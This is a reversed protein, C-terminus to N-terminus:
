PVVGPRLELELSSTRPLEFQVVVCWQNVVGVEDRLGRVQTVTGSSCAYPSSNSASVRFEFQCAPLDLDLGNWARLLSSSATGDNATYNYDLHNIPISGGSPVYTASTVGLNGDITVLRYHSYARTQIFVPGPAPFKLVPTRNVDVVEDRHKHGVLVTGVGYEVLKGTFIDGFKAANGVPNFDDEYPPIHALVVRQPTSQHAGLDRTFFDWGPYARSPNTYKDGTNLATFHFSDGYDFSFYQEGFLEYFVNIDGLDHNGAVMVIPVKLELLADYVQVWEERTSMDAIDGTWVVLDPHVLNVEKVIQVLHGLSSPDGRAVHIDSIHAVVVPDKFEPVVQVAHPETFSSGGAVVHLNYLGAPVEAPVSVVLKVRTRIGDWHAKPRGAALDHTEGTWPNELWADVGGLPVGVSEFEVDFEQGPLRIAPIGFRPALFRLNPQIWLVGAVSALVAGGVLALVVIPRENSAIRSLRSKPM